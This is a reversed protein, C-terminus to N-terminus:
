REENERENQLLSLNLVLIYLYDKFLAAYIIECISWTILSPKFLKIQNKKM